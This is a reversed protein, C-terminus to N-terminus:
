ILRFSNEPKELSEDIDIGYIKSHAYRNKWAEGWVGAGACHDLVKEPYIVPQMVEGVLYCLVEVPKLPTFYQDNQARENEGKYRYPM